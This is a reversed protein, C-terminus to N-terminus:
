VPDGTVNPCSPMLLEPPPVLVSDIGPCAKVVVPREMPLPEAVVPPPAMPRAGRALQTLEEVKRGLDSLMVQQIILWVGLALVVLWVM